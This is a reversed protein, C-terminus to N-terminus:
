PIPWTAYAVLVKDGGDLQAEIGVTPNIGSLFTGGGPASSTPSICVYYGPASGGTVQRITFDIAIEQALGGFLTLMAESVVPPTALPGIVKNSVDSYSFVEARSFNDPLTGGPITTPVWEAGDWSPVQDPTAGSQSLKDLSIDVDDWNTQTLLNIPSRAM